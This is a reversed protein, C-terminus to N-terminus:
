WGPSCEAARESRGAGPTTIDRHDVRCLIWLRQHLPHDASSVHFSDYVSLGDDDGPDHTGDAKIRPRPDSDFHFVGAGSRTLLHHLEVHLRHLEVHPGGASGSRAWASAPRIQARPAAPRLSSPPGGPTTGEGTKPWAPRHGGRPPAQCMRLTARRRDIREGFEDCNTAFKLYNERRSGQSPVRGAGRKCRGAVLGFARRQGLMVGLELVQQNDSMEDNIGEM